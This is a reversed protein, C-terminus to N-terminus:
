TWDKVRPLTCSLAGEVGRWRCRAYRWFRVAPNRGAREDAIRGWAPGAPFIKEGVAPDRDAEPRGNTLGSKCRTKRQKGAGNALRFSAGRHLRQVSRACRQRPTTAASTEDLLRVAGALPGGVGRDLALKACRIADIAVGASNPSDEVSLRLEFNMPVGGFGRGEMRIFCVKNDKQWPVYDTPGIHINDAGATCRAAIQVAETKTIKKSKLRSGNSCTSFTPTAAPTSSIPAISSVGRDCVPAGSCAIRSRRASRARSTTASSPFAADRFRKAWQPDSAIFVPICNVMAVGADLCAKAYHKTAQQSGVPLYCLLVEAGIEAAHRSTPRSWSRSASRQSDPYDAM